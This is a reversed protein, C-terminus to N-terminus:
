ASTFSSSLLQCLARQQPSEKLWPVGNRALFFEYSLYLFPSNLFDFRGGILEGTLICRGFVTRCRTCSSSHATGGDEEFSPFRPTLLPRM